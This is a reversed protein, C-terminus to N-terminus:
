ATVENPDKGFRFETEDSWMRSLIVALNRAVAVRARAMGAIKMGEARLGSWMKSGVLLAHAAVLQRPSEFRRVDGIEAAFTM